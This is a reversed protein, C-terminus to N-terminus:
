TVVHHQAGGPGGEQLLFGFFYIFLPFFTHNFVQRVNQLRKPFMECCVVWTNDMFMCTPTKTNTHKEQEEKM